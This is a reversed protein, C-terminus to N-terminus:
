PHRGPFQQGLRTAYDLSSGDAPSVESALSVRGDKFWEGGTSAVTASMMSSTGLAGHAPGWNPDVAALAQLLPPAEAASLAFVVTDPEAQRIRAATTAPDGLDLSPDAGIGAAIARERSGNGTVVLVHKGGQREVQSALARAEVAASAATPWNWATQGTDGGVVPVRAARAASQVAAVADPAGCPTALLRAGLSRLAQVSAAPNPGHTDITVVRVAKGSAVGRENVEAAAVQLGLIQDQCANAGPGSLDAPVGVVVEDATPQGSVDVDAVAAGDPATLRLSWRGERPLLVSGALSPGGDVPALRGSVTPAGCACSAAVDIGGVGGVAIPVDNADPRQVSVVLRNLGPRGPSLVVALVADGTSTTTVTSGAPSPHRQSFVPVSVPNPLQGLVGALALVGVGALAEWRRWVAAVGLGIMVVVLAVKVDLVRGYASALLERAGGLQVHANFVGTVVVVAISAAVPIILRRRPAGGVLAVVAALWVSAAVLHVTLVAVQATRGTSAGLAHGALAVAVLLGVTAVVAYAQNLRRHRILGLAVPFLALTAVLRQLALRGTVTSWVSANGAWLQVTVVAAVAVAAVWATRPIFIWRSRRNEDGSGFFFAAAIVVAALGMDLVVLLVRTASGGPVAEAARGSVASAGAAAGARTGSGVALGYDGEVRHGDDGIVSWEVRYAGPRLDPVGAVLSTGTVQVDARSRQNGPGPGVLTVTCYPGDLRETFLLRLEKPATALTSGPAPEARVLYPHASASPATAVGAGVAVLFFLVAGLGTGRIHRTSM